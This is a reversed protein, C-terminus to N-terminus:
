KDGGDKNEVLKDKKKAAKRKAIGLQILHDRRKIDAKAIESWETYLAWLAIKAQRQEAKRATDKPDASPILDAADPSATAISILHRLRKREAPGIRREALKDLAAHDAKRTAKREKGNDLEDLRDLFTTVSALAAIGTQPELDQFVFQLQEPMQVLAARAVRFNPEDWADIEAIAASAEPKQPGATVSKRFGASKLVLSWAQEHIAESYGRQNLTARIPHNSSVGGFFKLARAPVEDLVTDSPVNLDAM